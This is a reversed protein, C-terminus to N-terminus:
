RGLSRDVVLARLEAQYRRARAESFQDVLLVAMATLVIAFGWAWLRPRPMEVAADPATFSASLLLALGVLVLIGMAMRTQPYYASFREVRLVEAAVWARDAAEQSGTSATLAAFERPWAEARRVNGIYFSAGMVLLLAGLVALPGVMARSVPMQGFWHFLGALLSIALGAALVIRMEVLEGEVWALSHSLM